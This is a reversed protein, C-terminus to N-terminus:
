VLGERYRKLCIRIVIDVKFDLDGVVWCGDVSNLNVSQM